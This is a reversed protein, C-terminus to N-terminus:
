RTLIRETFIEGADLVFVKEFVLFENFTVLEDLDVVM